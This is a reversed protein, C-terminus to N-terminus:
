LRGVVLRRDRLLETYFRVHEIRMNVRDVYDESLGTLTAIRTVATARESTSLRNGRALLAPYDVAAFDEAEALVEALPRDGHLGHYHAIAAYTPLFLAHPKDNGESFDLVSFDLATSILILGNLFMGYRNQLHQALGRAR